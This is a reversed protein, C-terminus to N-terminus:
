NPLIFKNFDPLKRNDCFRKLDITGNVSLENLLVADPKYKTFYTMVECDVDRTVNNWFEARWKILEHQMQKLTKKDKLLKDLVRPAEQWGNVWVFPAKSKIFPDFAHKCGATRYSIDISFVPISGADIAEYLRFAEPSSGSAVFTFVSNLLTSRYDMPKQYKAHKAIFKAWTRTFRLIGDDIWRYKARTKSNRFTQIMFERSKSTVSGLFNWSIKRENIPIVENPEVPRWEFRPGLPIWKMYKNLDIDYYQRLGTRTPDDKAKVKMACKEDGMSIKLAGFNFKNFDVVQKRVVLHVRPWSPPCDSTGLYSFTKPDWEKKDIQGVDYYEQMDAKFERELYWEIESGWKLLYNRLFLSMKQPTHKHTKICAKVKPLNSSKRAYHWITKIEEEEQVDRVINEEFWDNNKYTTENWMYFVVVLVLSVLSVMFLCIKKTYSNRSETIDKLSHYLAIEEEKGKLEYEEDSDIDKVIEENPEIEKLETNANSEITNVKTYQQNDESFFFSFM